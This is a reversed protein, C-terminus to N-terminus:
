ISQDQNPMKPQPYPQPPKYRWSKPQRSLLFDREHQPLYTREADLLMKIIFLDIDMAKFDDISVGFTKPKLPFRSTNSVTFINKEDKNAGWHVLHNRITNIVTLQAFPAALRDKKDIQGTALLINNIADKAADVRHGHFLAGSIKDNTEAIDWLLFLLSSELQSFHSIFRGLHFWFEHYPEELYVIADSLGGGGYHPIEPM